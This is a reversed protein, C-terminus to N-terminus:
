LRVRPLEEAIVLFRAANDKIKEILERAFDKEEASWDDGLPLSGM